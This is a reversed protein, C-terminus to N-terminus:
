RGKYGVYVGHMGCSCKVEQLQQRNGIDARVPCSWHTRTNYMIYICDTAVKLCQRQQFVLSRRCKNELHSKVTVCAVSLAQQGSGRIGEFSQLLKSFKTKLTM